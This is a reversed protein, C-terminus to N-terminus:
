QMESLYSRYLCYIFTYFLCVLTSCSNKQKSSRMSVGIIFEFVQTLNNYQKQKLSLSTPFLRSCAQKYVPNSKHTAICSSSSCCCFCSSRCIINFINFEAQNSPIVGSHLGRQWTLALYTVICLLQCYIFLYIFM